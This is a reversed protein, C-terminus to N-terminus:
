SYSVYKFDEPRPGAMFRWALADVIRATARGDGYPNMALAMRDYDARDDILGQVSSVIAEKETGVLRVAGAHIAEPRETTRRMVLVPRGLTPAEEQVGGSDTLVIRAARMLHTFGVYALPEILLVNSLGELAPAFAGRVIPNRHIPFVFAWDPNRTALERLALAIHDMTRGWSERRHSTVLVIPTGGEIFAELPGSFQPRPLDLALLLADIVTNGTVTISEASFGEGLLNERNRQTPALHLETIQSTLRRNAEEPFPNRLDYTRLGAEVHATPVDHYLAALAGVFTSTTDGQVIVLDPDISEIADGLRQMARGTLSSLSQGHLLLGLDLDFRLGFTAAVQDLMERHQGTTVVIPDFREDQELGRVVPALKVAEPRTGMLIAVRFTHGM